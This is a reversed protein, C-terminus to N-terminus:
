SAERLANLGRETIRYITPKSAILECLGKRSLRTLGDRASAKALYPHGNPLAESVYNIDAGDPKQALRRLIRSQRATLKPQVSGVKEQLRVTDNKMFKEPLAEDNLADFTAVGDWKGNPDHGAENLVVHVARM